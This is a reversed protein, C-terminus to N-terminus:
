TAIHTTLLSAIQDDNFSLISAKQGNGLTHLGWVNSNVAGFM